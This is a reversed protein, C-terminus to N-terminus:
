DNRGGARTALLAYRLSAACELARPEDGDLDSGVSEAWRRFKDVGPRRSRRSPVNRAIQYSWRAARLEHQRSETALYLLRQVLGRAVSRRDVSRAIMKGCRIVEDHRDWTWHAGLGACRNKGLRKASELLEEAHTVAHRIPMRYPALAIGASLTLPGYLHGPGTQFEEALAGAFDFIVNWPGVLLLDDGGAYVTYLFRWESQVMCRVRESFFRHLDRSFARLRDYTRDSDAIERVRLGTDDVDAKLVALRTDGRAKRSIEEFTLPIGSNASHPIWRGVRRAGPQWSELLGFPVDIISLSGKGVRVWECRTLQGGIGRTEVCQQCLLVAEDDDVVQQTGPFEHCVDCPEDLPPRSWAEADWVGHRRLVSVGPMRKLREMQFRADLPTSAWGLALQVQGGFEHWVRRQLDTVLRDLLASDSPPAIRVLFGGGGRVLVDNKHVQLEKCIVWLAAHELVELLFSRARLRKAQSKGAPKVGLVFRQIGSFDGSLYITGNAESVSKARTHVDYM